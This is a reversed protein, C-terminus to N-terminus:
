RLQSQRRSVDLLMPCMDLVSSAASATDPFLLLKTGLHKTRGPACPVSLLMLESNRHVCTQSEGQKQLIGSFDGCRRQLLSSAFSSRTNSCTSWATWARHQASCRKQWWTKSSPVSHVSQTCVRLVRTCSSTTGVVLFAWSTPPGPIIVDAQLSPGFRVEFQSLFAKGLASHSFFSNSALRTLLRAPNRLSHAPM